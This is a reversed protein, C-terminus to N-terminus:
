PQGTARARRGSSTSALIDEFRQAIDEIDFAAEAYRRGSEGLKLRLPADGRLIRAAAIFQDDSSAAIGAQSRESLLSTSSNTPPLFGLIPRAACLYSLIKSPISYSGAEQELVVTLVSATALMSPLDSFDQFPLLVLNALDRGSKAQALWDAGRGASAVVVRVDPDSLFSEALNALLEPRHKMGLTGSYLFVFKDALDHRVSWPNSQDLVPLDAIPAWNEIVATHAEAVGLRVAEEALSAAIAVVHSASTITSRELREFLPQLKMKWGTLVMSALGSQIDQLWLVRPTRPDLGRITQMSLIPVNSCLAVDPKWSRQFRGSGIGYRVEDVSRKPLSYKEFSEGTAVPVIELNDLGHNTLDGHPTSNTSCFLHAVDHGRAALARSLEIQFPHGAYDNVLIRLHVQWERRRPVAAM